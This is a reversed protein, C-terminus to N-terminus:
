RLHEIPVLKGSVAPRLYAPCHTVVFDLREPARGVQLV